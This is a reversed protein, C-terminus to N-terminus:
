LIILMISYLLVDCAALPKSQMQCACPGSAQVMDQFKLHRSTWNPVHMHLSPLASSHIAFSSSCEETSHVYYTGQAVLSRSTSSLMLIFRRPCTRDYKRDM